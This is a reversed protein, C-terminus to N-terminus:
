LGKLYDIKAQVDALQQQVEDIPFSYYPHFQKGIAILEENTPKTGRNSIMEQLRQKEIRLDSIKVKRVVAVEEFTDSDIKNYM